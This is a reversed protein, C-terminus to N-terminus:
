ARTMGKVEIDLVKRIAPLDSASINRNCGCECAACLAKLRGSADSTPVYDAKAGLAKRPAKCRFCYFEGLAMPRKAEKKRADLYALAQFGMILTPREGDLRAMGEKLWSRVTQPSVCAAHALEDVLYSKNGKIKRTKFRTAM